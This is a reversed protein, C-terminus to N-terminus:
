KGYNELKNFLEDKYQNAQILKNKLNEIFEIDYNVEVEKYRHKENYFRDDYSVFAGKHLGTLYMNVQLQSYYEPKLSNLEEGSNILLYDLHTSSKPCKIEFVKNGQILVDPTGSLNLEPNYFIVYGNVSTYVFSKDEVSLGYKEAIKLAAQPELENGREMFSNYYEPEPTALNDTLKDKIYSKAGKSLVEGKDKGAKTPESLLRHIESATFFKKRFEKWEEEREFVKYNAM